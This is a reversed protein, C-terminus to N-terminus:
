KNVQINTMKLQSKILKSIHIANFVWQEVWHFNDLLKMFCKLLKLLLNISKWAFSTASVNSSKAKWRLYFLVLLQLLILMFIHTRLMTNHPLSICYTQTHGQGGKEGEKVSSIIVTIIQSSEMAYLVDQSYAKVQYPVHLHCIISEIYCQCKMHAYTLIFM